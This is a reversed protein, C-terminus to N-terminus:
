RALREVVVGYLWPLRSAAPVVSGRLPSGAAAVLGATLLRYDRTVRAWRREYAAPDDLHEVAARAQALGVRLGEGTLADVYGSADGVLRVRGSTRAASRVRLPGAGRVPGADAGELRAALRPLTALEADFDVGAPGLLAVGVLDPAVPTVYAEVRPGWHVEVLDSWPAVRFHRRLGFRRRDAPPRGRGRAPVGRSAAVDLGSERRVRSHLGDCAFLWRARVGGAAVLGGSQEVTTVRRALVVAGADLAAEHLAAHLATRRVGRGPGAAFRHDAVVGGQRYSIGALDHGPPDVGLRRVAALTGPMLGEGCAKDVPAPRPELVVVDLGTRRAELAAALGVPGGGAVVVDADPTM